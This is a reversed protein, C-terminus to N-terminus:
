HAHTQTFEPLQHHVPFGLMSCDLPDCLTPCLQASSFQVSLVMVCIISTLGLSMALVRDLTVRVSSLSLASHLETLGLLGLEPGRLVPPLSGHGLGLVWSSGALGPCVRQGSSALFQCLFQGPGWSGRCRLLPLAQPSSVGPGGSYWM